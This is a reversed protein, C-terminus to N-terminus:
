DNKLLIEPNEFINGIVIYNKVLYENLTMSQYEDFEGEFATYCNNFVVILQEPFSSIDDCRKLIDNEFIKTGNKDKLGTYQGITNPNVTIAEQGSIIKPIEEEIYEEKKGYIGTCPKIKAYYGYVWQTNVTLDSNIDKIAKGRFLIERM